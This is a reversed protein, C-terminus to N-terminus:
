GLNQRPINKMSHRQHPRKLHILRSGGIRVPWHIAQAWDLLCSCVRVCVWGAKSSVSVGYSGSGSNDRRIFALALELSGAGADSPTRCLGFAM